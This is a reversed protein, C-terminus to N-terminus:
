KIQVAEGFIALARSVEPTDANRHLVTFTCLFEGTLFIGQTMYKFEGPAPNRDALAYYWGLSQAGKIEKLPAEKEVSQELMHQAAGAVNAQISEPTTSKLKKADLWIATVKVDFSDGSAPRLHIAVAPPQKVPESEAIWESPVALRLAGHKPVEFDKASAAQQARAGFGLALIALCITGPLRMTM